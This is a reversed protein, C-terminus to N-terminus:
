AALRMGAKVAATNLQEDFSLLVVGPKQRGIYLVTALQVADAGKLSYSRTLVSAELALTDDLTIRSLSHWDILLDQYATQAAQESIVKTEALRFIVRSTEPLALASVVIAKAKLILTDVIPTEPEIIYRKLLASSDLFLIV